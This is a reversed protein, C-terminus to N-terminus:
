IDIIISLKSRSMFLKNALIYRKLENQLTLNPIYIFVKQVYM